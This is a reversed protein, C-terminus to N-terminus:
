RSQKQLTTRGLIKYLIGLSDEFDMQAASLQNFYFAHTVGTDHDAHKGIQIPSQIGDMAGPTLTNSYDNFETALPTIGTQLVVYTGEPYALNMLNTTENLSCPRFNSPMFPDLIPQTLTKICNNMPVFTGLKWYDWLTYIGNSLDETQPTFTYDYRRLPFPKVM